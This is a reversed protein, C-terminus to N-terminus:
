STLLKLLPDFLLEVEEELGYHSGPDAKIVLTFVPYCYNDTGALFIVLMVIQRQVGQTLLLRINLDKELIARPLNPEAQVADRVRFGGM